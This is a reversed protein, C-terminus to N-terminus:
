VQVVMQRLSDFPTLYKVHSDSRQARRLPEWKINGPWDIWQNSFHPAQLEGPLFHAVM